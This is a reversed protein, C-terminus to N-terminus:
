RPRRTQLPGRRGILSVLSPSVNFEAALARITEGTQRRKWVEEAQAYTLKPSRGRRSNTVATVPELHDPNVCDRSRCLHDLQLGPPIEGRAETYHWRHALWDKGKVRVKGYGTRKNIRLQWIWCPTSYGRDEAVYRTEKRPGSRDMGKSNHGRIFRM